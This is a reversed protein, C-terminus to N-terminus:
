GRPGRAMRSRVSAAFFHCNRSGSCPSKPSIKPGALAGLPCLLLVEDLAVKVQGRSAPPRRLRVMHIAAKGTSKSRRVTKGDIAIVGVPIGILAAVRAVFCRQFQDADLVALIESFHRTYDANPRQTPQRWRWCARGALEPRAQETAVAWPWDPNGAPSVAFGYGARSNRLLL